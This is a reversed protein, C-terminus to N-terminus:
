KSLEEISNKRVAEWAERYEVQQSPFEAIRRRLAQNQAVESATQFLLQSWGDHIRNAEQAIEGLELEVLKESTTFRTWVDDGVSGRQHLTTLVVKGEKMRILQRIDEAAWEILAAKVNNDPVKQTRQLEKLSFYVDRSYNDPYWPKIQSISGSNSGERIM